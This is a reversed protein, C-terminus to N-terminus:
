VTRSYRIAQEKLRPDFIMAINRVILRGRPTVCIEDPLHFEILDDTEFDRLDELEKELKELLEPTDTHFERNLDNFNLRGNCMIESIIRRRFKDEDTLIYGRELPLGNSELDGIYKRSTKHNQSYVNNLQSIGSSGFAYVQGTTDRTTYGQFNRHLTGNRLAQVLPDDTRAFHDMGIFVYGADTLANLSDILMTIKEDPGPLNRQELIKQHKKIWPVHAYSFTVLRDPNLQVAKSITKRFGNVTQGPLGYIFDLNISDMGTQRCYPILHELPIKSPRRNVTLLVDRNLDQVGLSLRNIGSQRLEVVNKESLLSPDCEMAIEVCPSFNFITRIRDMIKRIHDIHLSNPTGGGWHVMTVNRRPDIHSAIMDLEKLMSHIYTSIYDSTQFHETTCGCYLCRRPCFPIHLYLSINKDGERNSREIQRIHEETTYGEKFYPATPYSTYRPGPRDYKLLIEKEFKM